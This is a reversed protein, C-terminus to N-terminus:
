SAAVTINCNEEECAHAQHIDGNVAIVGHSGPIKLKLYTYNLVAMSKVYCPRGLIANYARPLDTVEFTIMKTQFNARSKFTVPLDVRGLPIVQM